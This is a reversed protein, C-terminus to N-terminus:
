EAEQTDLYEELWPMRDRLARIADRNYEYVREVPIMLKAAVEKPDLGDRFRLAITEYHMPQLTAQIQEWFSAEVQFTPEKQDVVDWDGDGEERLQDLSLVSAAGRGRDKPVYIGRTSEAHAM